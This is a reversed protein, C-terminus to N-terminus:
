ENAVSNLTFQVLTFPKLKHSRMAPANYEVVSDGRGSLNAKGRSTSEWMGAILTKVLISEEM